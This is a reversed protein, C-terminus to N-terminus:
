HEVDEVRSGWERKIMEEIKSRRSKEERLEEKVQELKSKLQRELKEIVKCLRCVFTAM